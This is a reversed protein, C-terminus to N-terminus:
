QQAREKATPDNQESRAAQVAFKKALQQFCDIWYHRAEDDENLDLTDPVYTQPDLLLACVKSDSM